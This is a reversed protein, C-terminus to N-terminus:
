ASTGNGYPQEALPPTLNESEQSPSIERDAKSDAEREGDAGIKTIRSDVTQNASGEGTYEAEGQGAQTLHAKDLRALNHRKEEDEQLTAQKTDGDPNPYTKPHKGRLSNFLGLSVKLITLRGEYIPYLGVTIFGFVSWIFSVIM